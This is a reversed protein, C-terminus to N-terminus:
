GNTKDQTLLHGETFMTGLRKVIQSQMTGERTNVTTIVYRRADPSWSVVGRDEVVSGFGTDINIAVVDQEYIPERNEIAFLGTFHLPIFGPKNMAGNAYICLGLHMCEQETRVVGANVDFAKWQTPAIQVLQKEM